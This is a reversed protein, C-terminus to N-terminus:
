PSVAINVLVFIESAAAITRLVAKVANAAVVGRM